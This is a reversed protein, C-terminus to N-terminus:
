FDMERFCYGDELWSSEVHVWEKDGGGQGKEDNERM